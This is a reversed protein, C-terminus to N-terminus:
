QSGRRKWKFPTCGTASKFKKILYNPACFGTRAAIEKINLDGKLLMRKNPAM